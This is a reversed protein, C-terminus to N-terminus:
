ERAINNEISSNSSCIERLSIGLEEQLAYFSQRLQITLQQQRTV